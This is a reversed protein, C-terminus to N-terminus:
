NKKLTYYLCVVWMLAPPVLRFLVFVWDIINSYYQGFSYSVYLEYLLFLLGFITVLWLVWKKM